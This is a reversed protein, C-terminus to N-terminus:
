SLTHQPPADSTRETNYLSQIVQDRVTQKTECILHYQCGGWMVCPNPATQPWVGSAEAALYRTVAGQVAERFEQFDSEDRYTVQRACESKTKAVQLGNVMFTDAQLGLCERVLWLYCTYQHNPRIRQYFEKGLASSTKHDTVLIINHQINRLIVDITGFVDIRLEPSESLTASLTREVFPAGSKDRLVEFPDDIYKKIYTDLLKIGNSPHRKDALDLRELPASTELFSRVADCRSCPCKGGPVEGNCQASAPKREALPRLYWHELGKHIARGFLTADSETNSRLGDALAYKAKRMCTQIIELSSYNIRVVTQPGERVVTLMEKPAEPKAPETMISAM